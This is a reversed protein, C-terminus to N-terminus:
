KIARVRTTEVPLMCTKAIDKLAEELAIGLTELQDPGMKAQMREFLEREEKRIHSSCRQAFALLDQASMTRAVARSFDGRLTAHEALLEGVLSALEGSARAAAPFLVAEEAAFHVAIEQQFHQAIEAQWTDLDPECIPSARVIRVCLALAHQHQRSLPVLNKDRLM